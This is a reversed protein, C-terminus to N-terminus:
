VSQEKIKRYMRQVIDILCTDEVVAVVKIGKIVRCDKIGHQPPSDLAQLVHKIADMSVTLVGLM